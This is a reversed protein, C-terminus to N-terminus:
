KKISKNNVLNVIQFTKNNSCVNFNVHDVRLVKWIYYNANNYIKILKIM